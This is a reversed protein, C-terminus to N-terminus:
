RQDAEIATAAAAPNELSYQGNAHSRVVMATTLMVGLTVSAFVLGVFKLGARDAMDRGM